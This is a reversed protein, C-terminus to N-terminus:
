VMALHGGGPEGQAAAQEAQQKAADGGGPQRGHHEAVDVGVVFDVFQEVGLEGLGRLGQERQGAVVLPSSM